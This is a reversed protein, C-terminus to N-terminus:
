LIAVFLSLFIGGMHYLVSRNQYWAYFIREVTLRSIEEGTGDPCVVSMNMIDQIANAAHLLLCTIPEKGEELTTVQQFDSFPGTGAITGAAISYLYTTRSALSHLSVSPEQSSFTRHESDPSEGLLITYNVIVGNREVPTLHNGHCCSMM